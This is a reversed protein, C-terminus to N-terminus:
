RCAARGSWYTRRLTPPQPDLTPQSRYHDVPARDGSRIRHLAVHLGRPPRPRPRRLPGGLSWMPLGYLALESMAKEDYVGVLGALRSLGAEGGRAGRRDATRQAPRTHTPRQAGGLLRRPHHRRLRLRPERCRRGKGAYVPWDAARSRHTARRSASHCGMSFLGRARALGPSRRRLVPQAQRLSLRRHDAHGNM